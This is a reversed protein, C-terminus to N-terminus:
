CFFRLTGALGHEGISIGEWVFGAIEEYPIQSSTVKAQEKEEPSIWESYKHVVIGLDAFSKAAPDFCALCLDQSPGYRVFQEQNPYWTVDCDMCAPLVSDCLLVHVEVGRQKLAMGILSELTAGPFYGGISTALLVKRLHNKQIESALKADRLDHLQPLLTAWNWRSIRKAQYARRVLRFIRYFNGCRMIRSKMFRKFWM